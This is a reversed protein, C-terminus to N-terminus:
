RAVEVRGEERHLILGTLRVGALENPELKHLGGGYVRGGAILSEPTISNLVRLLDAHLSPSDQLAHALIPKPYLMLYVNPVVARSRNLIFRFPEGHKREKRGM